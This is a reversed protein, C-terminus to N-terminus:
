VYDFVKENGKLYKDPLSKLTLRPKAILEPLVKDLVGDRILEGVIVELYFAIAHRYKKDAMKEPDFKGNEIIYSIVNGDNIRAKGNGGSKKRAREEMRNIVKVINSPHLVSFPNYKYDLDRNFLYGICSDTNYKKPNEYVDILAPIIQACNGVIYKKLQVSLVKYTYSHKYKKQHFMGILLRAVDGAKMNDWENFSDETVYGYFLVCDTGGGIKPPKGSKLYGEPYAIGCLESRRLKKTETTLGPHKM